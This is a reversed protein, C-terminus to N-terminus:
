GETRRYVVQSGVGASLWQRLSLILPNAMDVGGCRLAVEVVYVAATM